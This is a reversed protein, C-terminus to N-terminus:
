LPIATGSENVVIRAVMAPPNTPTSAGVPPGARDECGLRSCRGGVSYHGDFRDRRSAGLVPADAVPRAAAAPVSARAPDYAVLRARVAEDLLERL